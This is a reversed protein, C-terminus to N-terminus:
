TAHCSELFLKSLDLMFNRGNKLAILIKDGIAFRTINEKLSDFSHWSYSLVHM